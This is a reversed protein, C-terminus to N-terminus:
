SINRANNCLAADSSELSNRPAHFRKALCPGRREIAVKGSGGSMNINFQRRRSHAVTSFPDLATLCNSQIVVRWSVLSGLLEDPTVMASDPIMTFVSREVIRTCIFALTDGIANKDASCEYRVGKTHLCGRVFIYEGKRTKPADNSM